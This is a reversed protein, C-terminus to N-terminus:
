NNLWIQSNMVEHDTAWWAGRDMLNKLCSYQLPNGNGAWLIKGVWSSFGCRKSQCISEKGSLWRALVFGYLSPWFSIIDWYCSVCKSVLDQNITGDELFSSLNKLFISSELASALFVCSTDKTSYPFLSTRLLLLM